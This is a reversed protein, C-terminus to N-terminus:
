SLFLLFVILRFMCCDYRTTRTTRIDEQMEYSGKCMSGGSISVEFPLKFNFDFLYRKKGRVVCISADGTIKEPQKLTTPSQGGLLHCWYFDREVQGRGVQDGRAGQVHGGYEM